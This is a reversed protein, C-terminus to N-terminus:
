RFSALMRVISFEREKIIHAFPIIVRKRLMLCSSIIPNTMAMKRFHSWGHIYIPFKGFNRPWQFVSHGILDGYMFTSLSSALGVYGHFCIRIGKGMEGERVEKGGIM